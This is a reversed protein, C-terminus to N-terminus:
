LLSDTFESELDIDKVLKQIATTKTCKKKCYNVVAKSWLIFEEDFEEKIEPRQMILQFEVKAQTFDHVCLNNFDVISYNSVFLCKKLMPYKLFISLATTDKMSLIDGRRHNHTRIFLTKVKQMDRIKPDKAWEEELHNLNSRTSVEDEANDPITPYEHKLFSDVKRKKRPQSVGDDDDNRTNRNINQCRTYIFWKWAGQLISSNLGFL